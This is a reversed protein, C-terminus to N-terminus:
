LQMALRSVPSGTTDRPLSGRLEPKRDIQDGILAAGKSSCIYATEPERHQSQGDQHAQANGNGVPADQAQVQGPKTSPQSSPILIDPRAATQGGIQHGAVSSARASSTISYLATKSCHMLGTIARLRPTGRRLLHDPIPFAASLMHERRTRRERGRIPLRLQQRAASALPKSVTM